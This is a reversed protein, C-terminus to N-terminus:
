EGLQRRHSSSHTTGNKAEKRPPMFVDPTVAFNGADAIRDFEIPFLLEADNGDVDLWGTLGNSPM